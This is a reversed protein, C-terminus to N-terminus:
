RANRLAADIQAQQAEGVRQQHKQQVMHDLIEKNVAPNMADMTQRIFQERPMDQEEPTFSDYLAAIQQRNM